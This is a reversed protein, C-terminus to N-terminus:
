PDTSRCGGLSGSAGFPLFTRTRAEMDADSAVEPRALDFSSATHPPELAAAAVPTSRDRVHAREQLTGAARDPDAVSLRPSVPVVASLGRNESTSARERESCDRQWPLQDVFFTFPARPSCAPVSRRGLREPSARAERAGLEGDDRTASRGPAAEVDADVALPDAADAEGRGPVVVSADDEHPVDGLTARERAALWPRPRDPPRPSPRAPRWGPARGGSTLRTAPDRTLRREDAAAEASRPEPWSAKLGEPECPRGAPSVQARGRTGSPRAPGVESTLVVSPPEEKPDEPGHAAVEDLWPRDNFAESITRGLWGPPERTRSARSCRRSARGAGRRDDCPAGAKGRPFDAPHVPEGIRITVRSGLHIWRTGVVATPVIPADALRAFHALGPRSRCSAARTTASAGRGRWPWAPAADAARGRGATDRRHRGAAGPKFPM